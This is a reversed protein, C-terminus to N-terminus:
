GVVCIGFPLGEFIEIMPEIAFVDWAHTPELMPMIKGTHRSDDKGLLTVAPVAVKEVNWADVLGRKSTIPIDVV